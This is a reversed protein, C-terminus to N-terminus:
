GRYGFENCERNQARAQLTAGYRSMFMANTFYRTTRLNRPTSVFSGNVSLPFHLVQAASGRLNNIMRTKGRFSVLTQRPYIATRSSLRASRDSPLLAAYGATKFTATALLMRESLAFDSLHGSYCSYSRASEGPAMATSRRTWIPCSTRESMLVLLRGRDVCTRTLSEM